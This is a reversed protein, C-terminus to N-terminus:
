RARWTHVASTYRRIIRARNVVLVARSKAPRQARLDALFTQWVARMPREHDIFGLLAYTALTTLCIEWVPPLGVHLPTIAEVFLVLLFIALWIGYAKYRAAWPFTLAHGGSAPGLWVPESRWIEDDPRVRM